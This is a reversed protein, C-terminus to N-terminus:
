LEHNPPNEEMQELKAEESRPTRSLDHLVDCRPDDCDTDKNQKIGSKPDENM